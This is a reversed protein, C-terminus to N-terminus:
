PILFYLGTIFGAEVAAAETNWPIQYHLKPACDGPRYFGLPSEQKCIPDITMQYPLLIFQTGFRAISAIPQILPRHAHGYRELAPDSFYLPHYFFQTAEWPLAIDPFEREQFVRPKFLIGFERGKEIAFQRIDSDRDRDYYPDIDAIKRERLPRTSGVLIDGRPGKTTDEQEVAVPPPVAPDAPPDTEAKANEAQAANAASESNPEELLAVDDHAPLVWDNSDNVPLDALRPILPANEPSPPIESESLGKPSVVASPAQANPRSQAATSPYRKKMQQWREEASRKQLNDLLSGAKNSSDQARAAPLTVMCLVAALVLPFCLITPRRVRETSCITM